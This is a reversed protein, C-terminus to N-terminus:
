TTHSLTHSATDGPMYHKVKQVITTGGEGLALLGLLDTSVTCYQPLSSDEKGPIQLSECYNLQKIM